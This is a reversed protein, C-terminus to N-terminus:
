GRRAFPNRQPMPPKSPKNDESIDYYRFNLDGNRFTKVQRTALNTPRNGVPMATWNFNRKGM